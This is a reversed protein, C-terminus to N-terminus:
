SWNDKEQSEIAERFNAPDNNTRAIFLHMQEEDDQVESSIDELERIKALRLHTWTKRNITTARKPQKRQPELSNEDKSKKIKRKNSVRTESQNDATKELNQNELNM